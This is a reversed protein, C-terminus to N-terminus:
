KCPMSYLQRPVCSTPPEIGGLEVMGGSPSTKGSMVRYPLSFKATGIKGDMVKINGDFVFNFIIKKTNTDAQQWAKDPYSLLTSGQLKFTVLDSDSPRNLKLAEIQKDISDIESELVKIVSANSASIVKELQQKKRQSLEHIKSENHNKIDRLHNSNKNFTDENIKDALKLIDKNIRAKKLLRIFDEHVVERRINKPKVNCAFKPSDCRYYPYRKNRRGTAYNGLLKSSCSGCEIDGKLPFHDIGVVSYKTRGKSKIRQQVKNFLDRNIFGEHIGKINLIGWKPADIIGIYLKNTLFKKIFEHKLQYPKNTKLSILQKAEKSHKISEYTIYRGVAYDEYIKKILISNINDPYLVKDRLIMGVPPKHQWYGELVREKMRSNVRQLNNERDYDAFAVVMNEKLRSIPDTSELDDKLSLLSGGYRRIKAKIFYYEETNRSLRSIDDFIVFTECKRKKIFQFMEHLAPRDSTNGSMAADRFSNIIKINKEKAYRLCASYQSDLGNGDTVQKASSVRLYIVGERDTTNM